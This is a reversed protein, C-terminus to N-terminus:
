PNIAKLWTEFDWNKLDGTEVNGGLPQYFHILNRLTHLQERTATNKYQYEDDVGGILAVHIQSGVEGINFVRGEIDICHTFFPERELGGIHMKDNHLRIKAAEHKHVHAPYLSVKSYTWHVVM